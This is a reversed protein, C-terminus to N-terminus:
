LDAVEELAILLMRYEYKCCRCQEIHANVALLASGLEIGSRMADAYEGMLESCGDCGLSDKDTVSQILKSLEYTQDTTLKM